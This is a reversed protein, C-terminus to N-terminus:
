AKSAYRSVPLGPQALEGGTDRAMHVAVAELRGRMAHMYDRRTTSSWCGMFGAILEGGTPYNAAATAGGIRLCHLGSALEPYGALVLLRKLEASSDQYSVERGTIHNRLLPLDELSGPALDDGRLMEVIAHGASLALPDDDIIFSKVLGMEGTQDTKTPKLIIVVRKGITRGSRDKQDEFSLRGRHTDRKPNWARAMESKPRILDGSRSVGQWQTLWLAWLTKHAQNHELDMRAKVARLHQQMIPLRAEQKSPSRKHLGKLVLKMLHTSTGTINLGPRRGWKEAYFSRVSAMCKEAYAATNAEKGNQRPYFVVFTAFVALAGSEANVQAITPQAEGEECRGFSEVDIHMMKCFDVWYNWHSAQTSKTTVATGDEKVAEYLGALEQSVAAAQLESGFQSPQSGRRHNRPRRHGQSAKVLSGRPAFRRRSPWMMSGPELQRWAFRKQGGM